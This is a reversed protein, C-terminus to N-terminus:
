FIILGSPLSWPSYPQPYKGLGSVIMLVSKNSEVKKNKLSIKEWPVRKSEVIGIIKLGREKTLDVFWILTM